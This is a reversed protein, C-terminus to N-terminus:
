SDKIFSSLDIQNLSIFQGDLHDFDHDTTVLVANTAHATAAIWLDNKGMNRASLGTPLPKASLRGQSYADIRAYANISSRVKIPLIIFDTLLNEMRNRRKTGWKWQIALSELEGQSVVSIVGRNIPLEFAEDVRKSVKEARIIAVLVNTDFLFSTM